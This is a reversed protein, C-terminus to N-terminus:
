VKECHFFQIYSDNINETIRKGFMFDPYHFQNTAVTEPMECIGRAAKIEFGANKLMEMLQEPFYEIYHEPHIFGGGISHTHIKTLYRNPTDLCFSGGKKLVRFAERCMREGQEHPVHEISQGSWVFDVSHDEIDQLTTMDTYRIVVEGTAGESDVAIDKYYEHRQDPPLDILTLKKFIHPYGMKYLPSNAGGLDLIYAGQPLLQSVMELRAAHILNLHNDIAKQRLSAPFWLRETNQKLLISIVLNTNQTWTNWTMKESSPIAGNTQLTLWANISKALETPHLGNFYHANDGAVERFVPIDRAIIPLQYHASEILPLGFGEGESAALLCSSSAYLQQLFEDSAEQLWFLRKGSEPHKKLKDVIEPITRRAERPLPTWGEKGVIVLSVQHGQKWLLEFAALTQLHGKRPEITGVTLFTTTQKLKKLLSTASAPIGTTPASATIDAGLPAAHIALPQDRLLQNQDLWTRLENTVAASIGILQDAFTAVEKLWQSHTDGAGNPFFEPRLIPLLDYVLVNLHVGIAKWYHFLGAQSAQIIEYPAFDAAYYIDGRNIDIPTNPMHMQSEIGLTKLTYERAYRCHWSGGENTLYVPEIRFGHPPNKILELLQSRVVREIGTKLDNKIISTVDILLQRQSPEYTFSNAMAQAIYEINNNPSSTKDIDAIAKILAIHDTTTRQYTAEITQAYQQACSAPNHKTILHNRANDALQNRKTHDEYLTELALILDIDTFEDPMMWVADLPLEAMSGNANVITALGYNMCDLVAASTEGRSLTRLQVGIDAAQLYQNYIDKESWGTVRIRNECDSNRICELIDKGYDGGHNEGVLILECHSINRLKSSLFAEILRYSRKTPDVLGFSCIVFADPHIGLAERASNRNPSAAATRLLPIVNWDSGADQTYWKQALHQSYQSHVIVGKANQLVDLNCPYHNKAHEFGEPSYRSQLAAYGHSNFLANSWANPIHGLLEEYALMGSLFFDHLVVVGPHQALLDLMHTHFPSNGMQYLIRDYSNAHSAFWSISQRPLSQLSTPLVITQQDTILEIDYHNILESLLEASYDAIGTREAPLPSAFALRPKISANSLSQTEQNPLSAVYTEIAHIASKASEDWSFTKAQKLGLEQLQSRFSADTLAQNLKTTISEPSNATFLAEPNGIVEPISTNDSGIVPAGCAMAELVPLGFGECLSPFIFLTTLNYLKVLDENSVYDTIVIEDNALRARKRLKHLYYRRTDDIKSAIVLQHESRLATSLQSYATILGELNKRTDFGGSVYLVMKRTINYRQFLAASEELPIKKPEFYSEVATSINIVKDPDLALTEIASQRSYNSIALLLGAKKLSDIKRDYYERQIPIPLYVTPNLLPILDYLIVATRTSDSFTGVSTVADDVYGEFLSSVLVMDPNLTQIFHERIKEAARTRWLNEPLHEAIQVPADFVRIRESPVLGDFEQHIQMISRPFASNLVLWIEHQKANRAIALALSLTYRGIGRFRSETQMGQLDIVIRM